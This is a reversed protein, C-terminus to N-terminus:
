LTALKIPHLSQPIIELPLNLAKVRDRIKALARLDTTIFASLLDLTFRFVTFFLSLDVVTQLSILVRSLVKQYLEDADYHEESGFLSGYPKSFIPSVSSRCSRALLERRHERIIWDRIFNHLSKDRSSHSIFVTPM